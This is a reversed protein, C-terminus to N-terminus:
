HVEEHALLIEHRLSAVVLYVFQAKIRKVAATLRLSTQLQIPHPHLAHLLVLQVKVLLQTEINSVIGQYSRHLIQLLVALQGELSRGIIYRSLDVWM